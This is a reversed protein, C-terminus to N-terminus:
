NRLHTHWELSSQAMKILESCDIEFMSCDFDHHLLSPMAWILVELEVHLPSLSKRHHNAGMLLPMDEKVCILGLGSINIIGELILIYSM